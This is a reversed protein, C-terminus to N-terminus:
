GSQTPMLCLWFTRAKLHTPSILTCGLGFVYYHCKKISLVCALREKKLQSYKHKSPTLTCSAYVIQREEGNPMRHSLVTGLSDSSTDCGLTLPDSCDLHMLCGSSTLLEKAAVFTKAKAHGYHTYLCQFIQSFSVTILLCGWLSLWSVSKHGHVTFGVM